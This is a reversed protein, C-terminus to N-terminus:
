SELELLRGVEPCPPTTESSMEKYPIECVKDITYISEEIRAQGHLHTSVMRAVLGDLGLRELSQGQQMIM